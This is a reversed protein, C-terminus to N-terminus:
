SERAGRITQFLPAKRNEGIGAAAIYEELYRDLKHHTPMEDEKGGREHLRVWGRHGQVYFDEVLTSIAAGVRAFTHIM